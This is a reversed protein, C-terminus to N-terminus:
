RLPNGSIYTDSLQTTSNPFNDQDYFLDAYIRNGICKLMYESLNIKM